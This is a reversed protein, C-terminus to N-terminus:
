NHKTPLIKTSIPHMLIIVIFHDFGFTRKDIPYLGRKAPSFHMWLLAFWVNKLLFFYNAYLYRIVMNKTIAGPKVPNRM